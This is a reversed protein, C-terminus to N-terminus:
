NLKELFGLGKGPRFIETEMKIVMLVLVGFFVSLGQMVKIKTSINKCM